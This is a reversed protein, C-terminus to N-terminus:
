DNCADDSVEFDAITEPNFDENAISQALCAMKAPEILFTADLAVNEQNRPDPMAGPSRDIGGELCDTLNILHVPLGSADALTMERELRNVYCEALAESLVINSPCYGCEASLSTAFGVTASITLLLSRM